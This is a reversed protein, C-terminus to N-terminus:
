RGRAIGVALFLVVLALLLVIRDVLRVSRLAAAPKAGTEVDRVARPLMAFDRHAALALVPLVVLLKAALWPTVAPVRRLNELGTVVLIALAAWAVVRGRVLLALGDRAGRAVAPLVLHSSYLVGGVWAVAAVVHLWVVVLRLV